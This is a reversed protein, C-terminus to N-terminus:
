ERMAPRLSPLPRPREREIALREAPIAVLESHVRGNVEACWARAAANAVGLDSWGGETMAPGILDRQADGVLAEVMGKSEPDAAECFDPRCGYQAAFRVYEPLPVVMTAVKGGKWGGM